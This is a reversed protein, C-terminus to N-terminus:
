RLRLQILKIIGAPIPMCGYVINWDDNVGIYIAISSLIMDFSLALEQAQCEAEPSDRGEQSKDVKLLKETQPM